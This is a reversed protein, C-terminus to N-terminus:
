HIIAAILFKQTEQGDPRSSQGGAEQGAQGGRRPRASNAKALSAKLADMLNVVM